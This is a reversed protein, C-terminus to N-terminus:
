SGHTLRYKNGKLLQKMTNASNSDGCGEVSSILAKWTPQLSDTIWWDLMEELIEFYDSTDSAGKKLRKREELPVGLHAGLRYWYKSSDFGSEELLKLANLVTVELDNSNCYIIKNLLRKKGLVPGPNIEVDGCLKILLMIVVLVTTSMGLYMLLDRQSITFKVTGSMGCRRSANYRGISARWQIVDIM